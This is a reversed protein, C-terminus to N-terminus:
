LFPSKFIPIWYKNGFLLNPPDLLIKNEEELYFEFDDPNNTNTIEDGSRIVNQSDMNLM